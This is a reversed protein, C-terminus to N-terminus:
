FLTTARLLDISVNSPFFEGDIHSVHSIVIARVRTSKLLQEIEIELEAPSSPDLRHVHVGRSQLSIIEKLVTSNEHTHLSSKTELNGISVLYSSGAPQLPM